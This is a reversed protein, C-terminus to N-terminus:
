ENIIYDYIDSRIPVDLDYDIEFAHDQTKEMMVPRPENRAIIEGLFYFEKAEHDDKNKRVFLFIRNDQDEKTRKYIHDADKSDVRRPHKSLAILHSESVFRDEYAIADEAKHYNIFVPLTKTRQDYFYGGINQANMNREWNLLRCVDEYTYKEYLVFNTDLYTQQYKEKHLEHGFDLLEKVMSFFKENQLMKQFAATLRYENDKEILICVAYRRREEEKAFENRLNLLVSHEMKADLHIQYRQILESQDDFSLHKKEILLSLIALEHIRKFSLVKKSLFEIVQEEEETLTITYEKEYKKLFHHYSGCKEFIKTVDVAGFQKFQAISPIGGLKHKLSLYSEKM